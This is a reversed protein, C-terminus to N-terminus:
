QVLMALTKSTPKSPEAIVVKRTNDQTRAAMGIM